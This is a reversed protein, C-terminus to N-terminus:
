NLYLISRFSLDISNAPDGAVRNGTVMENQSYGGGRLACGDKIFSKIHSETTFEYCNSAMDYINCKVDGTTGTNQLTTNLSTQNAYNKNEKQIFIIATDWAYSNMLDSNIGTYLDQCAKSADWQTVNNWLKEEKKEQGGDTSFIKSVKFNAKENKGYSAEYRAFYYGGNKRVSEIFGEIDNAIANTRQSDIHEEQTEEKYTSTTCESPTGDSSFDYRGLLIKGNNVVDDITTGSEGLIGDVPIWVYQNGQLDTGVVEQNKYKNRDNANDSIVVGSEKTGGVYYFGDPIKVGDIQVIDIIQVAQKDGETYDTYYIKTGDNEKVRIGEVYFINHSTENIIYIDTLDALNTYDNVKYKEYDEGYNLTLGELKELELILFKGTDNAGIVGANQLNTIDPYETKAPIEGYESYYSSVKDRLNKIDNQMNTLKEIYISDKASYLIMGTITLIIIVAISLSILTIGKDKKIM